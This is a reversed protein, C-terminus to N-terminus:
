DASFGSWTEMLSEVDTSKVLFRDGDDSECLYRTASYPYFSFCADPEGELPILEISLVANKTASADDPAASVRKVSMINEYMSRADAEKVAKKNVTATLTATEKGNEDKTTGHKLEMSYPTDNVTVRIGSLATIYRLFLSKNVFSEYTVESWPVVATNVTYIVDVGDMMAYYASNDETRNGLSLTYSVENYWEPSNLANGEADTAKYIGFTLTAKSHPDSLGFSALQAATPHVAEITAAYLGTLTTDWGQVASDDVARLYPKELVYKSCMQLSTDDDPQVYRLVVEDDRITGSLALTKLKATGVSDDPSPSPATILTRGVFDMPNTIAVDFYTEDFLWVTPENDLRGYYGANEGSSLRGFTLTHVVDDGYTVSIVLAPKKLGCADLDEETPQAFIEMMPSVTTYLSLLDNICGDDRPLDTYGSLSLLGEENPVLEYSSDKSKVSVHKIFLAGESSYDVLPKVAEVSTEGALSADSVVSADSPKLWGGFYAAALGGGLVLTVGLAILLNKIPMKGRATKTVERPDSFLTSGEEEDTPTKKEDVSM